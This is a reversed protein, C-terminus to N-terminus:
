LGVQVISWAVIQQLLLPNAYIAPDGHEADEVLKLQTEIGHKELATFAKSSQNWPVLSDATGHVFFLPAHQHTGSPSALQAYDIPHATAWAQEADSGRPAPYASGLLLKEADGDEPHEGSFGCAVRDDFITRLDSVGYISIAAQIDSLTDPAAGELYADKLHGTGALLQALHGGASGGAVVIRSADIGLELAHEKFYRVAAKVDHLQAPFQAIDSLRYNISAVAFGAATFAIRLKHAGSLSNEASSKDGYRWAGGHIYIMLPARETGHLSAQPPYFDFAHSVDNNPTYFGTLPTM